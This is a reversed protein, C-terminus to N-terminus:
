TVQMRKVLFYVVAYCSQVGWGAESTHVLPSTERTTNLIQETLDHALTSRVDDDDPTGHYTRAVISEISGPSAAAQRFLAMSDAPAQSDSPDIQAMQGTEALIEKM